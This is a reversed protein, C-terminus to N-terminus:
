NGSEREQNGTGREGNGTGREGNGTGPILLMGSTDQRAICTYIGTHLIGKNFGQM